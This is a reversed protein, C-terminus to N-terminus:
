RKFNQSPNGTKGSIISADFACQSSILKLSIKRKRVNDYSSSILIIFIFNYLLVYQTLSETNKKKKKKKHDNLIIESM